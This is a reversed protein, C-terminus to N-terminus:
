CSASFGLSVVIECPMVVNQLVDLSRTSSIKNPKSPNFM